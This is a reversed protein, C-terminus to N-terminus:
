EEVLTHKYKDVIDQRGCIKAQKVVLRAPYGKPASRDYGKVLIDLIDNDTYGSPHTFEEM